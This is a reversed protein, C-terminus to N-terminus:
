KVFYGEGNCYQGEIMDEERKDGYAHIDVSEQQREEAAGGM